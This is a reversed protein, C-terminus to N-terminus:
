LGLLRELLEPDEPREDPLLREEPDLEFLDPPLELDEELFYNCPSPHYFDNNNKQATQYKDRSTEGNYFMGHNM